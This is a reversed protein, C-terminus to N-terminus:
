KDKPKTDAARRYIANLYDDDRDQKRKVDQSATKLTQLEGLVYGEFKDESRKNSIDKGALFAALILAILVGWGGANVNVTSTSQSGKPQADLLATALKEFKDLQEDMDSM